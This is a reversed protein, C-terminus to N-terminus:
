YFKYIKTKFSYIAPIYLLNIITGWLLGFGLSVAIPQLIKGDGSVFFILSSLGLLTTLSTLVIPRLRQSAKEILDNESKTEHIFSIMVISDNIVVGALGFVGILGPLTLNLDLVFHGIIAGLISFPIVSIILFTATFNKFAFLLTLFILGLAIISAKSLDRNMDDRKEKEGKFEFQFGNQELNKLHPEIKKM